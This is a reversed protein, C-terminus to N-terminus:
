MSICDIKQNCVSKPRSAEILIARHNVPKSGYFTTRGKHFMTTYVSYINLLAYVFQSQQNKRWFSIEIYVEGSTAPNHDPLDPSNILKSDTLDVLELSEAYLVRNWKTESRLSM